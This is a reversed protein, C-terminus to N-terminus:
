NSPVNPKLKAKPRIASKTRLVLDTRVLRLDINNAKGDTSEEPYFGLIYMKKLEDTITQFQSVFDSGDAVLLRGATVDAMRSLIGVPTKETLEALTQKSGKLGFTTTPYYISYVVTDGEILEELMTRTRNVIEGADTLVIIAKRGTVGAFQERVVELIAQNMLGIGGPIGRISNLSGDIKNKNSTLPQRVRVKDGFTVVMCQDDPELRSVFQKAAKRIGGLVGSVSGTEDLVIAVNLPMQADSFYVIENSVGGSTVKFDEPKLGSVHRGQKDSVIVPLNVLLTKM